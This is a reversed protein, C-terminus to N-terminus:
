NRKHSSSCVNCLYFIIYVIIDLLEQDEWFFIPSFVLGMHSSCTKEAPAFISSNLSFCQDPFFLFDWSQLVSLGGEICVVFLNSLSLIQQGQSCIQFLFLAKFYIQFSVWIRKWQNKEKQLTYKLPVALYLNLIIKMNTGTYILLIMHFELQPYLPRPQYKEQTVVNWKIGRFICCPLSDQSKHFIPLSLSVPFFLKGSSTFSDTASSFSTEWGLLIKQFAHPDDSWIQTLAANVQACSKVEGLNLIKLLLPISVWIQRRCAGNEPNVLSM